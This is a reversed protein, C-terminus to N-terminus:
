SEVIFFPRLRLRTVAARVALPTSTSQLFFGGSAFLLLESVHGVSRTGTVSKDPLVLMFSQFVRMNVSM